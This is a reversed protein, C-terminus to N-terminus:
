VIRLGTMEAPLSRAAAPRSRRATTTLWATARAWQSTQVLTIRLPQEAPSASIGAVLPFVRCFEAVIPAATTGIENAYARVFGRAFIGAPWKSVDGSELAVLLGVSIKTLQAVQELSIGRAERLGRLRLGFAMADTM